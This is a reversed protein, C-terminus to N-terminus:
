ADWLTSPPLLAVGATANLYPGNAVAAGAGALLLVPLSLATPIRMM